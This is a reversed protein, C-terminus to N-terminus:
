FLSFSEFNEQDMKQRKVTYFLIIFLNVVVFIGILVFMDTQISGGIGFVNRYADISYTIPLFPHIAKFFNNSLQIPYTGGSGSLQLVLFILMLFSGVKDFLLNFLMVISISTLATVITVFLTKGLSLTELGNVNILLTVMILSQLIGVAGVVSLKSAWWSLSSKPYKNPTFVDYMLNLSIAGVFLAVSMMYPAMGTGNNAIPARESQRSIVPQAMVEYTDDSPNVENLAKSGDSLKKNLEKTGDVLSFLGDGLKTSGDALQSSGENIKEAGDTLKNAGDTLEPAKEVLLNTGEVLAQTGNQLENAGAALVGTQSNLTQLGSNLRSSGDLLESSGDALQQSGGLLQTLGDSLTQSGGQAQTLGNQLSEAGSLLAQSNTGIENFGDVLAYTGSYIRDYGTALESVGAQLALIQNSIASADIDNLSSLSSLGGGITQISAYQQAGITQLQSSVIQEVVATQEPSLDANSEQIAAMISSTNSTPESAALINELETQTASVLGTLNSLQGMVGELDSSISSNQLQGNLTELGVDMQDLGAKLQNLKEEQEQSTMTTNLRELGDVLLQSGQTLQAMSDNLTGMGSSLTATNDVLSTLGTKLADSGDNLSASGQALQQVASELLPVKGTLTEVGENLATAGNGVQSVGNLYTQLGINLTESGDKFTLTSAALTDLNSTITQNGDKIEVAGDTLKESGDAAKGMGDAVKELENFVSEAYIATVENSINEKIESAASATLKSAIYSRGASTEYDLVMQKPAEDMITTANQSFNEPITLVMYYDGKDLGSEAEKKSIFHFDMAKSEKLGDILSDGIALDEDNFRIPKDMNVVAVPLETLKGYPNWMSSLFIVTYLSPILSIGLLIVLMKKNKFISKWEKKFM